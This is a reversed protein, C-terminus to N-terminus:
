SFDPLESSFFLARLQYLQALVFHIVYDFRWFTVLEPESEKIEALYVIDRILCCEVIDYADDILLELDIRIIRLLLKGFMM